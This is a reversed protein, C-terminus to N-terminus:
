LKSEEDAWGKCAGGVSRTREAISQTWSSKSATSDESDSAGSLTTKTLVARM